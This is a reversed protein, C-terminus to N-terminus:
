DRPPVSPPWEWPENRLERAIAALVVPNHGILFHSAIRSGSCWLPHCMHPATNTAGVVPDRLHAFPIIRRATTPATDLGRLFESDPRMDRAARDLAVHRALTAGRHPTALTIITDARLVRGDKHDTRASYRAVLGGMSHAIVDVDRDGSWSTVERIVRARSTDFGSCDMFSVALFDYPNGSTIPSLKSRISEVVGAWAHYGNLIVVPRALPKPDRRMRQLDAIARERTGQLAPNEEQVWAWGLSWALAEVALTGGARWARDM